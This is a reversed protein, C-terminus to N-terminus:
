GMGFLRLETVIDLVFITIILWVPLLSFIVGLLQLVYIKRSQLFKRNTIRKDFMIELVYIIFVLFYFIVDVASIIVFIVFLPFGLGPSWIYPFFYKAFLALIIWGCIALFNFSYRNKYKELIM